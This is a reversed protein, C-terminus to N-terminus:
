GVQVFRNRFTEKPWLGSEAPKTPDTAVNLIPITVVEGDEAFEIALCRKGTTKDSFKGNLITM